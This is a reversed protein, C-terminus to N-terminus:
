CCRGTYDSSGDLMPGFCIHFFIPSGRPSLEVSRASQSFYLLPQPHFIALPWQGTDLGPVATATVTPARRGARRRTRTPPLALRDRSGITQLSCGDPAVQPNVVQEVLGASRNGRGALLCRAAPRGATVM